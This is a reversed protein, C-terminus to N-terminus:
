TKLSPSCGGEPLLLWSALYAKGFRVIGQGLCSNRGADTLCCSWGWRAGLGLLGWTPARRPLLLPGSYM